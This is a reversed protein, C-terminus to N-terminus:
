PHGRRYTVTAKARDVMLTMGATVPGPQSPVVAVHIEADREVVMRRPPTIGSSTSVVVNWSGVGSGITWAGSWADWYLGLVSGSTGATNRWAADLCVEVGTVDRVDVSVAGVSVTLIGAPRLPNEGSWERPQAVRYEWVDGLAVGGSVGGYLILIGRDNDVVMGHLARGPPLGPGALDTWTSDRFAYFANVGTTGHLGGFMVLRRGEPDYVLRASGGNGSPVAPVMNWGSSWYYLGLTGPNSPPIPPVQSTLLYLRREDVHYAMSASPDLEPTGMAALTTWGGSYSWTDTLAGSAGRGGAMVVGQMPLYAAAAYSRPSPGGSQIWQWNNGTWAWTDDLFEGADTEGGFIIVRSTSTDFAAAAGCRAPPSSVPNAKTWVRGDWEWTDNRCTGDVKGGFVMTRMVPPIATISEMYVMVHGFRAGPSQNATGWGQDGYAWVERSTQHGGLLLPAGAARDGFFSSGVRPEPQRTRADLTWSGWRTRFHTQSSLLDSGFLVQTSRSDEFLGGQLQTPASGFSSWSGGSFRHFQGNMVAVLSGQSELYALATPSGGWGDRTWGTGDWSWTGGSDVVAVVGRSKDYAVRGGTPGTQGDRSVKSWALGDWEWVETWPLLYSVLVVRGRAADYAMGVVYRNGSPSGTAVTRWEGDELVLTDTLQQFPPSM